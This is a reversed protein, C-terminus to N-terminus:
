ERLPETPPPEHGAFCHSNMPRPMMGRLVVEHSQFRQSGRKMKVQLASDLVDCRRGSLIVIDFVSALKAGPM